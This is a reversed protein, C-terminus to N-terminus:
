SLCGGERSNSCSLVSVDEEKKRVIGEDEKLTKGEIFLFFGPNGAGAM